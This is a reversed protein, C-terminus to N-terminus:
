TLNQLDSRKEIMMETWQFKAEKYRNHLSAKPEVRVVLDFDIALINYSSYKRVQQVQSIKICNELRNKISKKKLTMDELENMQM